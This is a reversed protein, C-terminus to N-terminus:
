TKEDLEKKQDKGLLLVALFTAFFTAGAQTELTDESLMSLLSILLFSLFFFDIQKRENYLGLIFLMFVLASGVVGFSLVFTLYQNHARLRYAEQINSNDLEYQKLIEDRVDGTGTGFWLHRKVVGLANKMLEFRLSFSHGNPTQFNSYHEIEWMLKYIRPYLAWRNKFLYNTTGAEIMAIDEDNLQAIGLSDKTLGMSTMYRILTARQSQGKSDIGRFANSSRKPWETKLEKDSVYLWVLHSNEYVNYDFYHAYPNGNVTKTEITEPDAKERDFFRHICYGSYLAILGLFILLFSFAKRYYKRAPHMKLWYLLMVPLLAILIVLGSFAGVFLVYTGMILLCLIYVWRPAWRIKKYNLLLGLVIYFALVNMLAFRIHSIFISSNRYNSSSDGEFKGYIITSIGIAVLIAGLYIYLLLKLEGNNLPESTGIIIILALIPLKIKIDHFGYDFNSTNLLWIIHVLFILVFFWISKREKAVQLKHKFKGELLWNGMLIFQGLSMLFPSLPMGILLIIIGLLYIYRHFHKGLMNVVFSVNWFYFVV